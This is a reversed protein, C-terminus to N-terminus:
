GKFPLAVLKAHKKIGAIARIDRNLLVKNKERESEFCVNAFERKLYQKRWSYSNRNM